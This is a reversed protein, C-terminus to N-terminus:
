VTNLRCLNACAFAKSVDPRKTRVESYKTSFGKEYSVPRLSEEDVLPNRGSAGALAQSGGHQHPEEAQTFSSYMVYGPLVHAAEEPHPPLHPFRVHRNAELSTHQPSAAAPVSTNHDRHYVLNSTAELHM